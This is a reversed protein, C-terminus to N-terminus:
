RAEDEDVSLEDEDTEVLETFTGDTKILLKSGILNSFLSFHLSIPAAIAFAIIEVL